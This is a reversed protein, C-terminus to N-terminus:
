ESLESTTKLYEVLQIGAVEIHRRLLAVASTIDGQELLKFLEEHEHQSTDRYNLPGYQFGMYRRVKENLMAVTNFLTAREAAQYLAAHVEWNLQGRELLTLSSGSLINNLDRAQKIITTTIYAAAYILLQPELLARMQYLDEAERWDLKPIMVGAKGHAVLWGEGKLTWIADRIPIRSTGYRKSLDQQRLPAGRKLQGALIDSKLQEVLEIHASM